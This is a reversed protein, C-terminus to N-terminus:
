VANIRGMAGAGIVIQMRRRRGGHPWDALPIFRADFHVIAMHPLPQVAVEHDFVIQPSRFPFGHHALALKDLHRIIAARALAMDRQLIMAILHPEAVHFDAPELARECRRTGSGVLSAGDLWLPPALEPVAARHLSLVADGAPAHAWRVTRDM